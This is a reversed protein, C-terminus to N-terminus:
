GKDRPHWVEPEPEPLFTAEDPGPRVFVRVIHSLPFRDDHVLGPHLQSM